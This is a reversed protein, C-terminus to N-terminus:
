EGVPELETEMTSGAPGSAFRPEVPLEAQPERLTFWAALLVAVQLWGCVWFSACLGTRGGVPLLGRTAVVSLWGALLGGFVGGLGGVLGSVVTQGTARLREPVTRALFAITGLHLAAFAFAHLPQFVTLVLWPPLPQAYALLRIARGTFGLLIMGRVGFRKLLPQGFAMLAVEAVVAVSWYLGKWRDGVGIADLYLSLFMYYAYNAIWSATLLVLLRKFRPLALVEAIDSGLGRIAPTPNPPVNHKLTAVRLTLLGSLGAFGIFVPLLRRIPDSTGESPLLLPFLAAVVVFGVSGWLRVRAYREGGRDGDAALMEICLADSLPVLPSRCVHLLAVLLVLVGLSRGFWQLPFCLTMGLAIWLIVRRKDGLRDALSGWLLPAVIGIASAVASLTGIEGDSLGCREFYLNLYAIQLAFPAFVLFYLQKYPRECAM